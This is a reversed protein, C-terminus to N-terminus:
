TSSDPAVITGGGGNKIEPGGVVARLEDANLLRMPRATAPTQLSVATSTNDISESSILIQLTM